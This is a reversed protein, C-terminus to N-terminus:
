RRATAACSSRNRPNAAWCRAAAGNTTCSRLAGDGPHQGVAGRWQARLGGVADFPRHLARPLQLLPACECVEMRSGIIATRAGWVRNGRGYFFRLCNVGQPNLVEQEGHTIDREFRLAGLVVENAPAKWVGRQIDTRAYIGTVFGSPPLAVEKPIRDDGPRAAPNAVVVWPYYLAARTSDIRSRADQAESIFLGDPTDLVAIRYSMKECHGILLDQISQFNSKAFRLIALRLWSRCM